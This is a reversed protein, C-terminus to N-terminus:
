SERSKGGRVFWQGFRRGGVMTSYSMPMAAIEEHIAALKACEQIRDQDAAPDFFCINDGISGAFLNDEQLVAGLSERYSTLGIISLKQGDILIDGSTPELLGLLLKMLTTKWSGSSGTIAICQGAPITLNLEKLVFPESDSYRFSLNKLEITPPTKVQHIDLEPIDHEAETFM